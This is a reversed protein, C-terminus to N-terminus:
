QIRKNGADVIFLTLHHDLYFGRPSSLDNLTNTNQENLGAIISCHKYRSSSPCKRIHYLTSIYINLEKDLVIKSFFPRYAYEGQEDVLIEGTGDNTHWMHVRYHPRDRLDHTANKSYDLIYMDETGSNVFIGTPRILGQSAVTVGVPPHDTTLLSYMQIRNNETDAIYLKHNAEDLFIDNPRCLSDSDSNCKSQHGAVIVGKM